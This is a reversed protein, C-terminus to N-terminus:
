APWLERGHLDAIMQDLPIRESEPYQIGQYITEFLSRHERKEIACFLRLGANRDIAWRPTFVAVARKRNRPDRILCSLSVAGPHFFIHVRARRELSLKAAWGSLDRVSRTLDEAGIPNVARMCDYTACILTITAKPNSQLLFSLRETLGADLLARLNHGAILVQECKADILQSFSYPSDHVGLGATIRTESYLLDLLARALGRLAVSFLVVIGLVAALARRDLLGEPATSVVRSLFNLLPASGVISAVAVLAAALSIPPSPTTILRLLRRM